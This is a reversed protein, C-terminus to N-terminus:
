FKFNEPVGGYFIKYKLSGGRVTPSLNMIGGGGRMEWGGFIVTKIHLHYRYHYNRRM